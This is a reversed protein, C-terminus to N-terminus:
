RSRIARKREFDIIEDRIYGARQISLNIGDDDLVEGEFRTAATRALDLMMEFAKRGELVSPLMMFLTLGPVRQEEINALDFSGPESINAVSFVPSNSYRPEAAFKHFIKFRGYKLDFERFLEILVNGPLKHDPSFAVRLTVIKEPEQPLQPQGGSAREGVGVHAAPQADFRPPEEDIKGDADLTPEEKVGGVSEAEPSSQSDLVPERRPTDVRSQALPSSSRGRSWAYIAAVVLIGLILLIWRLETM